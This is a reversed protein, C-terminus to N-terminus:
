DGYLEALPHDSTLGKILQACDCRIKTLGLDRCKAVAERLALGEAVFRLALKM